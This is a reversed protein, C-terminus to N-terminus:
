DQPRRVHLSGIMRKDSFMAGVLDYIAPGEAFRTAVSLVFDEATTPWGSDHMIRPNLDLLRQVAGEHWVYLAGSAVSCEAAKFQRHRLETTALWALTRDVTWGALGITRIPLYGMPKTWGVDFLNRMYDEAPSESSM